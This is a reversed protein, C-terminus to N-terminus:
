GQKCFRCIVRRYISGTMTLMYAKYLMEDERDNIANKIIENAESFSLRQLIATNGCCYQVLMGYTRIDLSLSLYFFRTIDNEKFIAKCKGIVDPISMLSAQEATMDGVIDAFLM